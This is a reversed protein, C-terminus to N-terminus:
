DHQPSFMPGLNGLGVSDEEKTLKIIVPNVIDSLRTYKEPNYICDSSNAQHEKKLNHINDVSNELLRKANWCFQILQPLYMMRDDWDSLIELCSERWFDFLGDEKYSVSWLHLRKDAAQIFFVKVRSFAEVSAFPFDDAICKLMALIGYMGKHHDLKIKVKDTNSFHGSTELLLLELNKLGFLKILGDSKYQLTEDVIASTAKLQRGMSVLCPQGQVFYGKCNNSNLTKGILDLYPWVFAQNFADENSDYDYPAEYGKVVQILFEELFELCQVDGQKLKENTLILASIRRIEKKFQGLDDTNTAAHLHERLLLPIQYSEIEHRDVHVNYLDRHIPIFCMM